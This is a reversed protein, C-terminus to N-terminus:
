SLLKNLWNGISYDKIVEDSVSYPNNFWEKSPLILNDLPLVYIDNSNYFDYEKVNANTTILKKHMALTEITRITLGRQGKQPVDIIAESKSYLDVVEQFSLKTYRLDDYKVHKYKTRFSKHFVFGWKSHYLYYGVRISPNRSELEKVFNYRNLRFSGIIMVDFESKKKEKIWYKDCYFLPIFSMNDKHAEYDVNDFTSIKDFDIWRSPDDKLNEIADWYYLVMKGKENLHNNRIIHTLYSTVRQGNIVLVLDYKDQGIRKLLGNEYRRVMRKISFHFRKLCGAIITWFESPDDNLYMVEAGFEKLKSLIENEYGYFKPALLLVKKGQLDAM